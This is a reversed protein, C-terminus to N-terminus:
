MAKRIRKQYAAVQKHTTMEDNAPSVPLSECYSLNLNALSFILKALGDVNQLSECYSLDLYTLKTLNKLGGV